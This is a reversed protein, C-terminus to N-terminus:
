LESSTVAALANTGLCKGVIFADATNYLQQFLQSLLIPLAFGIMLSYINGETMDRTHLSANKKKEQIQIEM